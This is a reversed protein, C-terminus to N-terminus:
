LLKSSSRQLAEENDKDNSIVASGVVKKQSMEIKGNWASFYPESSVPASTGANRTAGKELMLPGVYAEASAQDNAPLQVIDEPRPSINYGVSEEIAHRVKEESGFLKWIM